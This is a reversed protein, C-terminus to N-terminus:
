SAARTDLLYALLDAEATAVEDTNQRCRVIQSRRSEDRYREVVPDVPADATWLMTRWAAPLELPYDEGDALVALMAKGATWIASMSATEGEPKSNYALEPVLVEKIGLIAAVQAPKLLHPRIGSNAGYTYKVQDIMEATRVMYRFDARPCILSIM